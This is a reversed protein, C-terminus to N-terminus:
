EKEWTRKTYFSEYEKQTADPINLNSFKNRLYDSFMFDLHANNEPSFGM